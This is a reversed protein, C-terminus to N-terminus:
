GLGSLEASDGARQGAGVFISECLVLDDGLEPAEALLLAGGRQVDPPLRLVPNSRWDCIIEADPFLFFLHSHVCRVRRALYLLKRKQPYRDAGLSCSSSPRPSM